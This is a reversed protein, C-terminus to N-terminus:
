NNCLLPAAKYAPSAHLSHLTTILDWDQGGTPYLTDIVGARNGGNNTVSGMIAKCINVPTKM